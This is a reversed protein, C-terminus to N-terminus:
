YGDSSGGEHVVEATGREASYHVTERTETYTQTVNESTGDPYSIEASQGTDTSEVANTTAGDLDFTEFVPAGDGAEDTEGESTEGSTSDVSSPESISAGTQDRQVSKPWSWFACDLKTEMSGASSYSTEVTLVQYYGGLGLDAAFSHEDRPDGFGLSFPDIYVQSGPFFLSNGFMTINANYPMRLEDYLGIQNTMLSEQRFPVTLRQFSVNKIIGRDKGFHFHYINDEFDASESGVRSSPVRPEPEPYIIFFESEKGGESKYSVINPGQIKDIDVECSSGLSARVEAGTFTTSAFVQDKNKVINPAKQAFGGIAQPLIVSTCNELFDTISYTNGKTNIIENFVYKQYLDTSIPIDAVNITLTIGKPFAIKVNPLLVQLRKLKKINEKIAAIRKAKKASTLNKSKSDKLNKVAENMTVVRSKCFAEVMDGFTFFHVTRDPGDIRKQVEAALEKAKKEDSPKEPTSKPAGEMAAAELRATEEEASSEVPPSTVKYYQKLLAPTTTRKFIRNGAELIESIKRIEKIKNQVRKKAAAHAEMASLQEKVEETHSIDDGVDTEKEKIAAERLVDEMSHTLGFAARSEEFTSMRATYQINITATGDKAVNITHDSVNMRLTMANKTIEEIEDQTFFGEPDRLSYGLTALVEIPRRLQGAKITQGPGSHTKNAPLSITFLDALRAYGEKKLFINALSDVGLTLSSELYKRSTFPDTGQLKVSFNKIVTNGGSYGSIESNELPGYDSVIPFYFPIIKDGAVKYLRIEPVLMSLKHTELNFFSNSLKAAASRSSPSSNVRNIITEPEYMGTVRRVFECKFKKSNEEERKLIGRKKNRGTQGLLWMIYAQSHLTNKKKNAM